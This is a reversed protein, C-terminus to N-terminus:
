TAPGQIRTDDVGYRGGPCYVCYPGRCYAIIERKRPLEKLRRKLDRIPISVAGEIHGANFENELDCMWFLSMVM